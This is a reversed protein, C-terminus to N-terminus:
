GCTGPLLQVPYTRLKLNPPQIWIVPPSFKLERRNKLSLQPSKININTTCVPFKM